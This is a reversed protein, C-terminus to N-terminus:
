IWPSKDFFNSNYAVVNCWIWNDDMSVIPIIDPSDHYLYSFGVFGYKKLYEIMVKINDGVEHQGPGYEFQIIKVNNLKDNFGRFVFTEMCEVDIKLFDIFDINNEIMYEDGRKLSVRSPTSKSHPRKICSCTDLYFDIEKNEDSLGFNNFFFNKNVDAKNKLADLYKTYPEFYHVTKDCDLYISEDCTGVDFILEVHNIIKNFFDIESNYNISM